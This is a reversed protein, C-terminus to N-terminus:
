SGSTIKKGEVIEIISSYPISTKGGDERNIVFMSNTYDYEYKDENKVTRSQGNILLIKIM